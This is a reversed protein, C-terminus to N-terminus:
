PQNPEKYIAIRHTRVQPKIQRGDADFVIQNSQQLPMHCDTCRHLIRSGLTSFKGCSETRHCTLCRESFSAADRQPTHVDHCTSCTMTTSLYCRSSSLQQVQHGHVDAPTAPANPALSLYRALEEGARFSFSPAMPTGPGAHCLACLDVQRQRSLSATNVIDEAEGPQMPTKSQHRAVHAAGPGHCKECTIGLVIHTKDFRNSPPPLSEFYTSHCELCRPIIPKDFNPLGDPYGPSNIWRDTETWYSVPLEFLEEGKWYLYTQGKRGSGIVLDFREQHNLTEAPPLNAFATQFYGKQTASMVFFLSPNSTRLINSGSTFKGDISTQSPLRSAAHHASGIYTEFQTQHCGRCAEDGVYDDRSASNEPKPAAPLQGPLSPVLLLFLGLLAISHTNLSM